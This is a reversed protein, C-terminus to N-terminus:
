RYRMNNYTIAAALNHSVQPYNFDLNLISCADTLYKFGGPLSALRETTYPEATHDDIKNVAM